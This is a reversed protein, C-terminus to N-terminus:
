GQSTDPQNVPPPAPQPPQPPADEEVARFFRSKLYLRAFDLEANLSKQQTNAISNGLDRAIISAALYNYTSNYSARVTTWDILPLKNTPLTYSFSANQMFSITRGGKWFNDWMRKKEGNDLRGSDEDVWSKNTASYDINFSKTLDWRLNYIRDFTFFKDFTEPLGFKPGGVNRPRFAGFQRNVDARFGLLSPMPNINFDKILSYWPSKSKIFGKFPEWYKPTTTYNYGLGARHRTVENNEILPNHQEEKYLSYSLDINEISWIHQKKGSTNLKRVNTFNVTKITRVDVADDRISDRKDAPAANLKDKLQIDLDYPDYQPSSVQKQISAYFPISVGAKQPLLKGLELSTAIDLQTYDERSRENIRQELTGFGTSRAAGSIYFTGM